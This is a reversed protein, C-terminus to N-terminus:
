DLFSGKYKQMRPNKSINKLAKTKIKPVEKEDLGLEDAIEKSTYSHKGNEDFWRKLVRRELTSLELLCSNYDAMFQSAIIQDELSRRKEDFTTISKYEKKDDFEEMFHDNHKRQTSYFDKIEDLANQDWLKIKFKSFLSLYFLERNQEYIGNVVNKSLEHVKKKRAAMIKRCYKLRYTGQRTRDHHAKLENIRSLPTERFDKLFKDANHTEKYEKIVRYIEPFRHSYVEYVDDFFEKSPIMDIIQRVCKDKISDIDNAIYRKRETEEIIEPLEEAIYTLTEKYNELLGSLSINESNILDDITKYEPYDKFARERIAPNKKLITKVYKKLEAEYKRYEKLFGQVKSINENAEKVTYIANSSFGNEENVLETLDKLNSGKFENYFDLLTMKNNHVNELLEWAKPCKEKIINVDEKTLYAISFPKEPNIERLAGATRTLYHIIEAIYHEYYSATHYANHIYCDNLNGCVEQAISELEDYDEILKRRQVPDIERLNREKLVRYYYAHSNAFENGAIMQIIDLSTKAITDSIDRTISIKKDLEELYKNIKTTSTEVHERFRSVEIEIELMRYVRQLKPLTRTKFLNYATHLSSLDYEFDDETLAPNAVSLFEMRIDRDEPNNLEPDVIDKNDKIIQLLRLIENFSSEINEKYNEENKAIEELILKYINKFEKTEEKYIWESYISECEEDFPKNKRNGKDWETDYWM